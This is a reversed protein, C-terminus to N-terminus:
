TYKKKYAKKVGSEQRGRNEKQSFGGRDRRLDSGSPGASRIGTDGVQM